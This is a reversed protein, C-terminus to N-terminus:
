PCSKIRLALPPARPGADCRAERLTGFEPASPKAPSHRPITVMLWEPNVRPIRQEFEFESRGRLPKRPDLWGNEGLPGSLANAEPPTLALHTTIRACGTGPGRVRFAALRWQHPRSSCCAIQAQVAFCFLWRQNAKRGKACGPLNSSGVRPHTPPSHM